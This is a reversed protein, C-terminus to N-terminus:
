IMMRCRGTGGTVAGGPETCRAVIQDPTHTATVYPTVKGLTAAVLLVGPACDASFTLVVETPAYAVAVDPAPHARDLTDPDAVDADTLAAGLVTTAGATAVKVAGLDPGTAAMVLQGGLIAESVPWSAPGFALPRHAAPM